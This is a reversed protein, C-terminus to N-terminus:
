QNETYLSLGCIETSIEGLWGSKSNVGTQIKVFDILPLNAPSGDADIADDIKFCNESREVHALEITSYNDAYGWDYEGNVWNNVAREYNAAALRTGTLTYSPETVWAPYYYDQNHYASLYDIEGTSALNDSWAVNMAATDPKYYTVSYNRITEYKGYESGKLEYWEDDPLGNANVDRMVWVIGPESSNQYSNGKVRFSYGGDNEVSESFGVVIYGGFGGLSVWRGEDLRRQAYEVAQQSTNEGNFGAAIDNIFQGPAPLYEFVTVTIEEGDPEDYIIEGRNCSVMLTCIFLLILSRVKM